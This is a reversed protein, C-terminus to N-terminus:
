KMQEKKVNQVTEKMENELKEKEQKICNMNEETAQMKIELEIKDREL